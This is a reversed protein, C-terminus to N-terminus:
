MYSSVPSLAKHCEWVRIHKHENFLAKSFINHPPPAFKNKESCFKKKRFYIGPTRFRMKKPPLLDFFDIYKKESSRNCFKNEFFTGPTRFRQTSFVIRMKRQGHGMVVIRRPTWFNDDPFMSPSVFIQVFGYPMGPPFHRILVVEISVGVCELVQQYTVVEPKWM